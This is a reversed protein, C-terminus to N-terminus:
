SRATCCGRRAPPRVPRSASGRLGTSHKRGFLLGSAQPGGLCKGGSFSYLDVNMGTYKKINEIPPIGGACDAFVPVGRQHCVEVVEPLLPPDMPDPDATYYFMASKDTIAAPIAQVSDIVVLKGGALRVGGDWHTRGFSIVENKLGETDPLRYILDHDAGAICAATALALSGAAGSSIMASEAGSLEALRRGVARQLEVVDVTYHSAEEMAARVEPWMFAGGLFTFPINAMIYPQAGIRIYVNDTLSHETAVETAM